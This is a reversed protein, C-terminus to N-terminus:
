KHRTRKILGLGPIAAVASLLSVITGFPVEPIVFWSNCDFDLEFLCCCCCPGNDNSKEWSLFAFIVKYKGVLATSPEGNIGTFDEPFAVTESGGGLEISIMDFSVIKGGIKGAIEIQMNSPLMDWLAELRPHDNLFDKWPTGEAPQIVILIGKGGENTTATITQSQFRNIESHGVSVSIALSANTISCLMTLVLFPLAVLSYKM